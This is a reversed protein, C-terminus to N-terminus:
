EKYEIKVKLSDNKEPTCVKFWISGTTRAIGTGSREELLKMRPGSYGYDHELYLKLEEGTGVFVAMDSYDVKDIGYAGYDYVKEGIVEYRFRQGKCISHGHWNEDFPVNMTVCGWWDSLEKKAKKGEDTRPYQEALRSYLARSENRDSDFNTSAASLIAGPARKDQPFNDAFKVQNVCTRVNLDYCFDADEEELEPMIEAAIVLDDTKGTEEDKTLFDCVKKKFSEDLQVAKKFRELAEDRNGELREIQGYVFQADANKPNDKIEEKLLDIAESYSSIKMLEKAKDVRHSGCGAVVVVIVVLILFMVKKM